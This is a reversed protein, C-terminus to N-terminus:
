SLPQFLFQTSLCCSNIRNVCYSLTQLVSLYDITLAVSPIPLQRLQWTRPLCDRDDSFNKM